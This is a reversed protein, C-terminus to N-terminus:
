CETKALARNVPLVIGKDRCIQRGKEIYEPYKEYNAKAKKIAYEKDLDSAMRMGTELHSVNWGEIEEGEYDYDVDRFVFAELDNIMIREGQVEDHYVNGDKDQSSLKFKEM